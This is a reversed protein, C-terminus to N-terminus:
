TPLMDIISFLYILVHKTKCIVHIQFSNSPIYLRSNYSHSHQNYETRLIICECAFNKPCISLLIRDIGVINENFIPGVLFSFIEELRCCSNKAPVLFVNRFITLVNLFPERNWYDRYSHFFFVSLNDRIKQM